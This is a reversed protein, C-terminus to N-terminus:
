AGAQCILIVDYRVSIYFQLALEYQIFILNKTYNFKILGFVFNTFHNKIIKNKMILM